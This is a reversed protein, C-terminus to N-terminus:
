LLPNSRDRPNLLCVCTTAKFDELCMMNERIYRKVEFMKNEYDKSDFELDFIFNIALSIESRSQSCHFCM